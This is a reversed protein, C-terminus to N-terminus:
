GNSLVGMRERHATQGLSDCLFERERLYWRATKRLGSEFNETAGWGFRAKLKSANVAYRLDHGPRDKVFTIQDHYSCGNVKPQLDDLIDCINEVVELNSKESDGGILYYESPDSNRLVKLLAKAHDSVFLWDRINSGDGYVPLRRGEVANLIMLPILKESHQRPGYNNSCNTIIVPLGYTNGWARVFHDSAAKSASYPSNPCYPSAEDFLGVDGLSGFVEDTSVHHFRFNKKRSSSLNAFHKMSCELLKYTGEVNTKVFEAAGEISRDVHSEAALHLIYDPSFDDIISQVREADCIDVQMFRYRSSTEFQSVWRLNAAYTLKDINLINLDPHNEHAESIVASGIFGAGGTVLLQM